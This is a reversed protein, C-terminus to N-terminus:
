RYQWPGSSECRWLRRRRQHDALLAGVVGFLFSGLLGAAASASRRRLAARRGLLLPPRVRVCPRLGDGAEAPRNPRRLRGSPRLLVCATGEKACFPPFAREVDKTRGRPPPFPPRGRTHPRTQTTADKSGFGVGSPRESGTEAGQDTAGHRAHALSSRALRVCRRPPRLTDPVKPGPRRCRGVGGPVARVRPWPKRRGLLPRRKAKKEGQAEPAPPGGTAGTRSATKRRSPLGAPNQSGRPTGSYLLGGGWLGGTTRCSDRRLPVRRGRGPLFHRSLTAMTLLPVGGTALPYALLPSPKPSACAEPQARNCFARPRFLANSIDHRGLPPKAKEVGAGRPRLCVSAGLGCLILSSPEPLLAISEGNLSTGVM